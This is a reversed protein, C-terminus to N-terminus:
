LHDTPPSPILFYVLHRLIRECKLQGAQGPLATYTSVPGEAHDMWGQGKDGRRHTGFVNYSGLFHVHPIREKQQRILRDSHLSSVRWGKLDGCGISTCSFWGKEESNGLM